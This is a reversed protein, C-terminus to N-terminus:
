LFQELRRACLELQELEIFEDPKHGQEMSGPGWVVTTLGLDAFFGAETGFSVTEVDRGQSLGRQVDEVFSAAHSTLLGPYESVKTWEFSDTGAIRPDFAKTAQKVRDVIDAFVADIDVGPINRVEFDVICEGPVINVVTGGGIVGVQTTTMPPMFREDFPGNRGHERAVADVVSVLLAALSIANIGDPAFASHCSLGKVKARWNQKGKHGIVTALRTPEGVICGAAGEVRRRIAPLLHPIGACGIEEDYSLIFHVPGNGDGRRILAPILALIVALFGKMDAAGRGYIRGDSSTARYPDGSWQQGKVPVVDTHGSLVIGPGAGRGVTALIGAKKGTADMLVEPEVGNAALYQAVYEVLPLNSDASVTPFAILRELIALVDSMQTTFKQGL